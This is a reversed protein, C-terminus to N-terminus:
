KDFEIHQFLLLNSMNKYYKNIIRLKIGFRALIIIFIVNIM